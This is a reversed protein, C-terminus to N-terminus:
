AGAAMEISQAAAVPAAMRVAYFFGNVPKSTLDFAVFGARTLPGILDHQTKGEFVSHWEVMFATVAGLLGAAELSQFIAFEAGECDVKVIVDRGAAAAAAIIPRLAGAADVTVIHVPRGGAVSRAAMGGSDPFDFVSLVADEDRDGVAVNHASIKAALAPNLALNATARDYTERFPEFAHIERVADRTALSLSVLGINMGIDIVSCDRSTALNYANQFFIEDVFLLDDAIRVNFRVGNITLVVGDGAIEVGAGREHLMRFSARHDDFIAPVPADRDPFRGSALLAAGSTGADVSVARRYQEILLPAAGTVYVRYEVRSRSDLTFELVFSSRGGGIEALTVDRRALTDRGVDRAVDLIAALGDGRPTQGPVAALNFEVAYSGAELVAYPGYVAHGAAGATTLICTAGDVDTQTGVQLNLM